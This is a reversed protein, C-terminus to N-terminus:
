KEADVRGCTALKKRGATLMQHATLQLNSVYSSNTIVFREMKATLILRATIVELAASAMSVFRLVWATVMTNVNGPQVGSLLWLSTAFLTLIRVIQILTAFISANAQQPCYFNTLIAALNMKNRRVHVLQTIASWEMNVTTMLQVTWKWFLFVYVLKLSANRIRVVIKMQQAHKLLILSVFAQLTLAYKM